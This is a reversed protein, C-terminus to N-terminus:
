NSRFLWRNRGKQIEEQKRRLEGAALIAADKAHRSAQIEAFLAASRTAYDQPEAALTFRVRRVYKRRVTPPPTTPTPTATPADALRRLNKLINKIRGM